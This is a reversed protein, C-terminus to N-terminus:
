TYRGTVQSIYVFNYKFTTSLSNKRRNSDSKIETAGELQINTEEQFSDRSIEGRVVLPGLGLQFLFFVPKSSM